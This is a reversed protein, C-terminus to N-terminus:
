SYCMTAVIVHRSPFHGSHARLGCSALEGCMDVGWLFKTELSEIHWGGSFNGSDDRHHELGGEVGGIDNRYGSKFGGRFDSTWRGEELHSDEVCM